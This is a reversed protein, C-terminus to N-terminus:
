FDVEAGNARLTDRLEQVNIDKFDVGDRIKQIAATGAAEGIAMCTSMIRVPGLAQGDAAICRGAALVNKSGKPIMASYPIAAIGGGLKNKGAFGQVDGPKEEHNDKRTLDFHRGAFAITDEFQVGQILDEETLMREAIIRRTERIGPYTATSRLRCNEAGPIYKRWLKEVMWKARQRGIMTVYTLDDGCTGDLNHDGRWSHSTGGNVMWVGDQVMPFAIIAQLNKAGSPEDDPTDATAKAVAEPFWPDGGQELYAAIKASDVNEIQAVIGIATMEGTNKDGKYTAYGSRAVLDADGTCDIVAKCKIFQIGSKNVIYVGKIENDVVETDLATTYYLVELGYEKAMEDFVRKGIEIDFTFEDHCGFRDLIPYKDTQAMVAPGVGGKQAKIREVMLDYVGRVARRPRSLDKYQLGADIMKRFPMSGNYAGLFFPLNGSTSTGGMAGNIELMIAKLGGRAAAIGAGIGAPGGGAIVVDYEGYVPVDRKFDM